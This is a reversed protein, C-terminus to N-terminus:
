VARIEYIRHWPFILMLAPTSKYNSIQVCGEDQLDVSWGEIMKYTHSLGPGPHGDEHTYTVVAGQRFSWTM